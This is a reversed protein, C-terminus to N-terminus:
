ISNKLKPPQYISSDNKYLNISLTTGKLFFFDLIQFELLIFIIGM